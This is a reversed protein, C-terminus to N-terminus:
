TGFKERDEHDEDHDPYTSPSVAQRHCFEKKSAIWEQKPDGGGVDEERGSRKERIIIFVVVACIICLIFRTAIEEM